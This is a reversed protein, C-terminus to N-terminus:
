FICSKNSKVIQGGDIQNIALKLRQNSLIHLAVTDLM